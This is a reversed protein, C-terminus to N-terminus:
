YRFGMMFGPGRPGMLLMPLRPEFHVKGDAINRRALAAANSGSIGAVIFHLLQGGALVGMSPLMDLFSHGQWRDRIESFDATFYNLQDFQLDAPLLYYAGVLAGAAVALDTVLFAAGSGPAGNLFQGMGPLALSAARSRQVYAVQQEAVSIRELVRALEGATVDGLKTNGQRALLAALEEDLYGEEPGLGFYGRRPRPNPAAFLAAAVLAFILVTLWKRM